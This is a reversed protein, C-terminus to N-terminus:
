HACVVFNMCYTLGCDVWQHECGHRGSCPKNEHSPDPDKCRSSRLMLEDRCMLCSVPMLHWRVEISPVTSCM